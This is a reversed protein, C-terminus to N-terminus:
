FLGVPIHQWRLRVLTRELKELHRNAKATWEPQDALKAARYVLELDMTHDMLVAFTARPDGSTSARGDVSRFYILQTISRQYRRHPRM